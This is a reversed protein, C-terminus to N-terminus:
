RRFIRDWFWLNAAYKEGAVVPCGGHLSDFDLNGDELMSYFLVAAGKQPRVKFCNPNTCGSSVYKGDFRPFYTEGGSEVDTLYLFLTALRNNGTQIHGDDKYDNPTFYDYHERYWQTNSYHLGQIAEAVRSSNRSDYPIKLLNFARQVINQVTASASMGHHIWMTRSTRNEDLIATNSVTSRKLEPIITDILYQCEDFSLFDEIIFIKPTTSLVQLKGPQAEGPLFQTRAPYVYDHDDEKNWHPPYLQVHHVFGKEPAPWIFNNTEERITNIWDKGTTEYYLTRFDKSSDPRTIFYVDQSEKMDILAIEEGIKSKIRFVHGPFTNMNTNGNAGVSSILSLRHNNSDLWYIDLEENLLNKFQVVIQQAALVPSNQLLLCLMALVPIMGFALKGMHTQKPFKRLINRLSKFTVHTKCNNIVHHQFNEIYIKLIYIYIYLIGLAEDKKEKM